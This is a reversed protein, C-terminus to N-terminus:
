VILGPSVGPAVFMGSRVSSFDWSTRFSLLVRVGVREWSYMPSPSKNIESSFFDWNAKGRAQLKLVKCDTLNFNSKVMM